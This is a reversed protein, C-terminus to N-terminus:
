SETVIDVVFGVAKEHPRALDFLISALEGKGLLQDPNHDMYLDPSFTRRGVVRGVRDTLTLQLHPFPQAFGAENILKVTVRIAGPQAPHLDIKTHTLTFKFPDKRPPLSCNAIGCFASLYSRLSEDQAYKEVFFYKVQAGLLVVFMVTVALWALSSFPNKRDAIYKDVSNRSLSSLQTKDVNSSDIFSSDSSLESDQDMIVGATVLNLNLESDFEDVYNESEPFLVDKLDSRESSSRSAKSASSSVSENKGPEEDLNLPSFVPEKRSAQESEEKQLNKTEDEFPNKIDDIYTNKVIEENADYKWDYSPGSFELDPDPIHTVALDDDLGPAHHSDVDPDIDNSSRGGKSSYVPGSGSNKNQADVNVVSNESGQEINASVITVPVFKDGSRVVLNEGSDFVERCAGCRVIGSRRKYKNDPLRFIAECYPCGCYRQESM